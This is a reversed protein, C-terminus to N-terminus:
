GITRAPLDIPDRDEVYIRLRTNEASKGHPIPLGVRIRPKARRALPGSDVVHDVESKRDSIDEQGAIHSTNLAVLLFTVFWCCGTSIRKLCSRSVFTGISM